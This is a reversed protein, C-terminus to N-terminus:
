IPECGTDLYPPPHIKAFKVTYNLPVTGPGFGVREMGSRLTVPLYMRDQMM